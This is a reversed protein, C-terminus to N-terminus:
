WTFAEEDIIRRFIDTATGEPLRYSTQKTVPYLTIQMEHVTARLYPHSVTKELQRVFIEADQPRKLVESLVYRLNRVRAIQWFLSSSAGCLSNVISDKVESM